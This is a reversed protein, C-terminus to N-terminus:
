TLLCTLSRVHLLTLTQIRSIFWRTLLSIFVDSLLHAVSAFILEHSISHM